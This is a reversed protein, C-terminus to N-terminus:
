ELIGRNWRQLKGGNWDEMTGIRLYGKGGM